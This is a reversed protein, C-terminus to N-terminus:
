EEKGVFFYSDKLERWTHHTYNRQNWECRTFLLREERRKHIPRKSRFQPIITNRLGIQQILSIHFFFFFLFSLFSSLFFVSAKLFPPFIASPIWGGAHMGLVRTFLIRKNKVGTWQHFFTERHFSHSESQNIHCSVGIKVRMKGERSQYKYIM